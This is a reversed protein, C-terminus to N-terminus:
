ANKKSLEATSLIVGFIIIAGGILQRASIPERLITASFILGFVPMLNMISAATSASVGRLGYNYFLYALVSCCIVLYLVAAGTRLTLAPIGANEVFVTPVFLFTSIIIQWFTLTSVSYKEPVSQTVFNYFAWYFGCTILLLNGILSGGSEGPQLTLVAIGIMATTIGTLKMRSTPVHYVFLGVLATVAPYSGAILSATGASTLHVGSNEFIYYLGVGFLSSLVFKGLDEKAPRMRDGSAIRMIGLLICAISFRALCLTMPTFTEYAIKTAIFSSSWFFIGILVALYYKVSNGM